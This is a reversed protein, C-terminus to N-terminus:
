HRKGPSLAPQRTSDGPPVVSVESTNGPASKLQGAKTGPAEDETMACVRQRAAEIAAEGSLSERMAAAPVACATRVPRASASTTPGNVALVATNAHVRCEVSLLGPPPRQTDAM